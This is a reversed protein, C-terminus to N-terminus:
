AQEMNLEAVFIFRAEQVSCRYSNCKFHAGKLIVFHWQLTMGKKQRSLMMQSVWIKTNEFSFLLIITCFAIACQKLCNKSLRFCFYHKAKCLKLKKGTKTQNQHPLRNKMGGNGGHQSQLWVKNNEPDESIISLYQAEQRWVGKGIKNKSNKEKRRSVLGFDSFANSLLRLFFSIAQTLTLTSYLHEYPNVYCNELALWQRTRSLKKPQGSRQKPQGFCWKTM